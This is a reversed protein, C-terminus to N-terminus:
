FDKRAVNASSLALMAASAAVSALLGAWPLNGTRFFAEASMVRYIGASSQTVQQVAVLALAVALTLLLPRWVDSFETSLLFALSFFVAAAIFLCFGHILADWVGFSAGVAPSFVSIALSAAMAMTFLEALGTVAGTVLLRLRSVPLSLTFAVSARQSLINGTGLLAAFLVALTSLNQAFLQSWVYGRYNSSLEIATRLRRGLDGELTLSSATPLLQEVKPWSLVIGAGSCLILVLGALFRTRTEIWMKYWLM